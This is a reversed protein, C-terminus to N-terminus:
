TDDRCSFAHLPFCNLRSSHHRAHCGAMDPKAMKFIKVVATFCIVDFCQSLMHNLMMVLMQTVLGIREGSKETFNHLSCRTQNRLPLRRSKRVTHHIRIIHRYKTQGYVIAWESKQVPEIGTKDTVM